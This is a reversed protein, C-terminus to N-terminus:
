RGNRKAKAEADKREKETHRAEAALYALLEQLYHPDLDNVQEPTWKFRMAMQVYLDFEGANTDGALVGQLRRLWRNEVRTLYM